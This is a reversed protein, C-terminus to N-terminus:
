KIVVRPNEFTYEVGLSGDLKVAQITWPKDTYANIQMTAKYWDSGVGGGGEGDNNNKKIIVDNWVRDSDLQVSSLVESGYPGGMNAYIVDKVQRTTIAATGAKIENIM